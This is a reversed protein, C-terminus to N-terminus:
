TQFKALLNSLIQSEEASPEHNALKDVIRDRYFHKFNHEYMRKTAGGEVCRLYEIPDLILLHTKVSLQLFLFYNKIPEFNQITGKCYNPNIICNYNHYYPSTLITNVYQLRSIIHILPNTRHLHHQVFPYNHINHLMKTRNVKHTQNIVGIQTPHWFCFQLYFSDYKQYIRYPAIDRKFMTNLYDNQRFALAFFYKSIGSDRRSNHISPSIFTGQCTPNKADKM